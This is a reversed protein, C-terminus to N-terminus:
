LELCLEPNVNGSDPNISKGSKSDCPQPDPTQLSWSKPRSKNYLSVALMGVIVGGIIGFAIYARLSGEYEQSTSYYGEEVHCHAGEDESDHCGDADTEGPSALASTSFLALWIILARM